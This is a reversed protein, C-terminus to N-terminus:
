VLDEPSNANKLFSHDAPPIAKVKSKKLLAQLSFAENAIQSFIAKAISPQYCTLVTEYFGAKEQRYTIVDMEPDISDMLATVAQQTLQILDCAVVLWNCGPDSKFASAIGGIPGLQDFQDVVIPFDPRIEKMQGKNCSIFVPFGMGSLLEYLFQYQPKGNVELLHKESGMRTSKGGILILAKTNTM